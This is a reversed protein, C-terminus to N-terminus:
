TIWTSIKLKNNTLGDEQPYWWAENRREEMGKSARSHCPSSTTSHSITIQSPMNLMTVNDRLDMQDRNTYLNGMVPCWYYDYLYRTCYHLNIM